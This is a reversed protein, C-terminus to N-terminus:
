HILHTNQEFVQSTKLGLMKAASGVSLHGNKVSELASELLVHPVVPFKIEQRPPLGVEEGRKEASGFKDNLRQAMASAAGRPIITLDECRRAAAWFSVGYIRALYGIEIDGVEDVEIKAAERIKKLSIGLGQSPMLLASAFANAYVEIDVVDPKPQNTVQYDEDIVAFDGDDHKHHLMIHGVEHALTFLMRGSFRKSVFIFPIGNMSASAGDIDANDIVFILTNLKESIIKPLSLLPSLQDDNFFLSRFIQANIEANKLTNEPEHFAEQWLTIDAKQRGEFIDMSDQLRTALNERVLDSVNSGAVPAGRFLVDAPFDKPDALLDGLSMRYFKSIARAEGVSPDAGGSLEKLREISIKTRKSLREIKEEAALIQQLKM